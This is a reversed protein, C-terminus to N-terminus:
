KKTLEEIVTKVISAITQTPYYGSFLKYRTDLGECTIEVTPVSSIGRELLEDAILEANVVHTRFKTPNITSFQIFSMTVQPCYPCTSTVYIIFDLTPLEDVKGSVESYVDYVDRMVKGTGVQYITTTFTTIESGVISAYFYVNGDVVYTLPKPFENFIRVPFKERIKEVVKNFEDEGIEVLRVKGDSLNVVERVNEVNTNYTTSDISRWRDSHVLILSVTSKVERLLERAMGKVDEM